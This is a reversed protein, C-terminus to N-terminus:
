LSGGEPWNQWDTNAAEPANFLAPDGRELVFALQQFTLTQSPLQGRVIDPHHWEELTLLHRMSPDVNVRREADTALVSDRRQRALYRCLAACQEYDDTEPCNVKGNVSVIEDRLMIEGFPVVMEPGTSGIWSDTSIPWFSRMENYPNNKIYNRYAEESVYDSRQRRHCIKSCVTFISLDPYGVRPSYGFIEFVM